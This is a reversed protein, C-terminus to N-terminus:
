VRRCLAVAAASGGAVVKSWAVAYWPKAGQLGWRAAADEKHHIEEDRYHTLLRTLEPYQGSERMPIIHEARMSSVSFFFQKAVVCPM